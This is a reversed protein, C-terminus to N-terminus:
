DHVGSNATVYYTVVLNPDTADNAKIMAIVGPQNKKAHEALEMFIDHHEASKNPKLYTHSLM